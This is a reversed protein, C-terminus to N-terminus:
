SLSYADVLLSFSDIQSTIIQLVLICKPANVVSACILKPSPKALRGYSAILRRKVQMTCPIFRSGGSSTSFLAEPRWM